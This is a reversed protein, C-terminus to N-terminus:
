YRARLKKTVHAILQPWDVLEPASVIEVSPYWLCRHDGGHSWYHFPAHEAPYLLWVPKGLAAAFHANANSTTILLDCADLIALVEELENYYDVGDFRMFPMGHDRAFAERERVTEGYQVDVFRVGSLAMLPAFESLAVSKSRGLRGARNSRWSLAVNPGPGLLARYHMARPPSAKLVQQPQRAFSETSTRFLGPLSGAFIAAGASRLADDPPDRLAVFRSAPFARQYAPLLRPDVEYIFSQGSSVLEPLLTSFLIQDGIGQEGWVGVVSSVAEGTGRWRPLHELLAVSRTDKRMSDRYGRLDCRHEYPEWAVAFDQQYLRALALNHRADAFAPDLGIAREYLTTAEDLLGQDQLASGLGNYGRADGPADAIMRRYDDIAGATDGAELRTNGRNNRVNVDGEDLVLACDFATLAETVRGLENLTNARNFHLVAVNPMRKLAKDFSHLADDFRRLALLVNGHNCWAEAQDPAAAVAGAYCALAEPLRGLRQLAFGSGFLAEAHQPQLVLARAYSALAAECSGTEMLVRGLLVHAPASGPDAELASTVFYHAEAFAGADAKLLAMQYLADTDRPRAALVKRLLADAEAWRGQRHLTIATKLRPAVNGAM